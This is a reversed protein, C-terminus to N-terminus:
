HIFFYFFRSCFFRRRNIFGRLNQGSSAGKLPSKLELGRHLIRVEPDVRGGGERRGATALPPRNGTVTASGHRIRM